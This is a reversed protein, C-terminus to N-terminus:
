KLKEEDPFQRPGDNYSINLSTGGEVEEEPFKRVVGPKMGHGGISLDIEGIVKRLKEVINKKNSRM